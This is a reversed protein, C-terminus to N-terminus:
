KRLLRIPRQKHSVAPVPDFDTIPGIPKEMEPFLSFEVKSRIHMVKQYIERWESVTHLDYRARWSLHINFLRIELSDFTQTNQEILELPCDKTHLSYLKEHITLMQEYNACVVLVRQKSNATATKLLAITCETLYDNYNPGGQPDDWISM